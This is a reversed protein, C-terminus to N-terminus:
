TALPLDPLETRLRNSLAPQVASLLETGAAAWFNWPKWPLKWDSFTFPQGLIDYLRYGLGNLLEHLGKLEYGYLQATQEGGHEFVILPQQRRLIRQSGLLAHYEAGELDLKMFRIQEGEPISSDLMTVPVRISEVGSEEELNPPLKQAKLGSRTAMRKVHAFSSEGEFDAVACRQLRIQPFDNLQNVIHRSPGDLPEFAYVRGGTGVARAMPMTHRGRNAGADVAADGPRLVSEYGVQILDEFLEGLVATSRGARLKEYVANRM